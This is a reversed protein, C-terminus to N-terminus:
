VTNSSTITSGVDPTNKLATVINVVGPPIGARHALEALAAATFPTEGPSKAVVTCGAALAAGAKRTLMAAPFNWPTILGCVGVPEKTTYVRNGAISAPITAGYVRPAEESFWEFFNAAYNVEGKADAMPKGNEWTILKAIDEANEMMLRCLTRLPRSRQRRIEKDMEPMTGILKGSAPDHVELTKGSKAGVWQGNVYAKDKLLSKDSLSPVNHQMAYTARLIRLHNTPQIRSRLTSKTSTSSITTLFSKM